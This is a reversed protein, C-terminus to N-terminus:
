AQHQKRYRWGVIGALGSGLLLMTSPEPVPATTPGVVNYELNDLKLTGVNQFWTIQTINLFDSPQNVQTAINVSVWAGGTDLLGSSGSGGLVNTEFASDQNDAMYDFSIIDVAVDFTLLYPTSCCGSHNRLVTGHPAGVDPLHIHPTGVPHGSTVTLNDESYSAFAPGYMNTGHSTGTTGSSFDILIAQAQGVLGFTLALTGAILLGKAKNIFHTM